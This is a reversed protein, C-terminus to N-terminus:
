PACYNLRVDDIAVQGIGPFTIQIPVQQEVQDDCVFNAPWPLVVDEGEEITSTTEVITEGNDSVVTVAIEVISDVIQEYMGELDSDSDAEYAYDLNNFASLEQGVAHSTPSSDWGNTSWNKM